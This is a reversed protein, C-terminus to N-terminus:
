QGSPLQIVEYFKQAMTNTEPNPDYFFTTSGSAPIPDSIPTFPQTLNTTALVQYNVGPASTWVVLQNNNALSGIVVPPSVTVSRTDTIPALSNTYSVQITDLGAPPNTWNYEIARYGFCASNGNFPSFFYNTQPQLIGNIVINFNTQAPVLTSSFCAQILYTMNTRYTLVIDNTAPTAISVVQQPALTTVNNTLLTIRNTYVGSAFEKLRVIIQATGSAPVNTYVFRYEQPLNTYTASIGSNPTVSTAAVFVNTGNGNSQGTVSDDNNPNSDQIQYDVGTVTSDARVVVTYSSSGILSSNAPYVIAGTPLAGDYYFTQSFTNYVSSEGTRPLYTRARLIHFGSQLGTMTNAPNLDNHLWVTATTPNFNTIAAQYVGYYKAGTSDSDSIPAGNNGAYISGGSGGYFAGFKYRVQTGVPQGPITVSWWDISSQNTDGSLYLAQVVQTTGRGAGFAGDPNSGDTTYYVFCTNIYGSYGIKVYITTPQNNGPVLPIRQTSQLHNTATMVNTPDHYVFTATQDVAQGYGSGTINTVSASNGVTYYYTGAGLSVITNSASHNAAFKEPNDRYQFATQEYGIFRDDAYGPKNDRLDLFNTPALGDSSKGNLNTPGLGMQSNLDVGGDLKVLTNACSSDCRTIIDFNANTVIPIDIAYTLNSVHVGGIVNGYQDVSGRMKFPYVPNFGNTDGNAGDTRNVIVHPVPNGGQKLTIANTYLNARSAEPWQYGYILWSQTPVNLEIAGGGSPITQGGIYILRQTPDSANVSAQAASLSNTAHHVLLKAYARTGTPSSSALQVLVSGPAFGVALGQNESGTVAIGGYYGDSTQAVGDDFTIDASGGSKTNILTLSVEQTQPQTNTGERYDYREFAIINADSWRSHTGGRALNNHLYVTEPLSNDSYEGLYNAYSVVPTGGAFNHNYGDSYTMPLGERMFLYADELGLNANYGYDQDMPFNVGQAASYNGTGDCNSYNPYYDRGDMGSVSSGGGFTNNLQSYLPQNELRMGSQLYDVFPPSPSIHEGFIMADNRATETNFLSNRNGDTEVYGNSIVNAGYGHVYDYMAQIAGTYGTFSSDDTQGTEAGFFGVPVHKVADLRFGDCGTMWVTWAVNRCLYDQVYENVPQGNGDFPHFSGGISPLNTDMYLDNRGPFRVFYPKTITNGISNGYNWNSTGPEQALDCLGLLPQNQVVSTTCWYPDGISPWNNWGGTVTQLHFDQPILGPYYNTATGSGPYGPVTSARHNMVNDFYVRIGFRHATQVMQLLQAQTGWRTAISGQQNTSGLDFPDFMDYGYSSSGSNGKGPNPVWLSDYGAEAIEPMKTTLQAWPVNFLELMAEGRASPLAALLLLIGALPLRLLRKM